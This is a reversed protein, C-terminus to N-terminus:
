EAGAVSLHCCGQASGKRCLGSTIKCLGNGRSERERTQRLTRTLRRPTHPAVPSGPAPSPGECSPLTKQVLPPYAASFLPPSPDKCFVPPCFLNFATLYSPGHIRSNRAHYTSKRIVQKCSNDYLEYPSVLSGPSVEVVLSLHKLLHRHPSKSRLIM